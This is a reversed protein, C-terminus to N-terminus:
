SWLIGEKVRLDLTEGLQDLSQGYLQASEVTQEQSFCLLSNSGSAYDCSNYDITTTATIVPEPTGWVRMCAEASSGSFRRRVDM